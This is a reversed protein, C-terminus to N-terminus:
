KKELVFVVKNFDAAANIVKKFDEFQSLPYTLNRYTENIIIEVQQGNQKATSTFGMTVTDGDKYSIDMDADKLNKISYGDPIQLQVTRQLVHPYPLEVPLQRPKEQYMQVQPGIIEGIKLLVKNGAREMMDASKIDGGIILPKNDFYDPLLTNEIKINSVDTSEGGVSKIIEKTAEDQKDKPLFVYIPRYSTAGYGKLIQKSTILLTDLSENFRLSAQLNIAHEEFPEMAIDGFSGIATKLNGISLTKLFLGRGGALVPSIYPYRLEVSVPSIYKKTGPFYLLMDDIRNWNELEEDLPYDGRSSAFVIQYNINLKDYLATLLRLSGGDNCAKTRIIKELDDGDESILKKDINFNTKVYDEVALITHAEDGDAIKMKSFLGDVAKQEKPTRTTYVGYAKKAFEKWTYLRVDSNNSLNYSLKYEVRKLYKDRMSYKEDELTPINAANGDIFREEGIVSDASVNFGNYGKADFKLHNPAILTFVAEQVPLSGDQFIEIGFVSLPKKISYSYEVEAGKEVGDLAFLKYRREDEEIEKIKDETLTYLKGGATLTRAKIDQIAANYYVPVYIKNFMEIGKDDNIKIIKHYTTYVFMDKDEKRYHIKREDLIAVASETKFSDAISHLVPKEQWRTLPSYTYRQANVAYAALLCAATFILKRM